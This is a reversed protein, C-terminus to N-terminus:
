LRLLLQRANIKLFERVNADDVIVQLEARAIRGAEAPLCALVGVTGQIDERTLLYDRTFGAVSKATAPSIASGLSACMRELGTRAAARVTRDGDVLKAAFTGASINPLVNAASGLAMLATIRYAQDRYAWVGDRLVGIARPDSARGLRALALVREVGDGSRVASLLGPVEEHPTPPTIAVLIDALYYWNSTNATLLRAVDPAIPYAAAGAQLLQPHLRLLFDAERRLDDSSRDWEALQQVAEQLDLPAPAGIPPQATAWPCFAAWLLVRWCNRM